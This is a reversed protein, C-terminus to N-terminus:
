HHYERKSQDCETISVDSSYHLYPNKTPQDMPILPSKRPDNFFANEELIKMARTIMDPGTYEETTREPMDLELDLVNDQRYRVNSDYQRRRRAYDTEPRFTGYLGSLSLPVHFTAPDPRPITWRGTEDNWVACGGNSVDRLKHAFEPPVFSSIVLEKLKVQRDLDRITDLMENREAQFETQLDKIETQSRRYKTSLKKLKKTKGEIEENLSTYKEEIEVKEDEKEEMLRALALEKEKRTILEQEAKRLAAEHKAALDVAEGGRMIETEMKKLKDKLIAREEEIKKRAIGERELKEQLNQKEEDTQLHQHMLEEIQEKSKAELNAVEQASKEELKRLVKDSISNSVDLSNKGGDDNGMASLKERLKAIEEQYEKLMAEKPDENVKPKNKINKARNAYRLTSLTEDYNWDAPGANACMVTKTNGGLSDQLIRTLKSDRYPVHNTKGDVLASIVNGLASLSLNIKTAEKLREGTAGTKSQRESGALDVLNLKGMRIHEGHDDTTCCEIVITFVSHSRSSGQNMQTSAVTRNKHGKQMLKDIESISKVVFSALGKVYVGSDSSERLELSTKPSNSILDRIEENYIEFYSARVLYNENTSGLTVHDFIHQFANPIIGRLDPDSPFGEMTHTKGAGTQGYAFITGNYGDLVSQVVPAGVVDYVEKQTCTPAFVSDFTFCKPPESEDAIPNKVEIRGRYPDASTIIQRGDKKEKTSPPRIRVIVKVAETSKKKLPYKM